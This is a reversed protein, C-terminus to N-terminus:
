HNAVSFEARWIAALVPKKGILAMQRAPHPPDM